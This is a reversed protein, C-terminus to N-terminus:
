PATANARAFRLFVPSDRHHSRYRHPQPLRATAADTRAGRLPTPRLPAAPARGTQGGAPSEVASRCRSLSVGVAHLQPSLNEEAGGQVRPVCGGGRRWRAVSEWSTSRARRIPLHGAAGHGVPVCSEAFAASKQSLPGVWQPARAQVCHADEARLINRAAFVGSEVRGVAPVTYHM